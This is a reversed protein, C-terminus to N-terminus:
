IHLACSKRYSKYYSYSSSPNPLSSQYSHHHSGVEGHHHMNSLDITESQQQTPTVLNLTKISCRLYINTFLVFKLSDCIKSHGVKFIEWQYLKLLVHLLLICQISKLVNM